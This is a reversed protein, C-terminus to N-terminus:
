WGTFIGGFDPWEVGYDLWLCSGFNTDIGRFDVVIERWEPLMLYYIGLPPGFVLLFMILIMTIVHGYRCLWMIFGVTRYTKYFFTRFTQYFRAWFVSRGGPRIIYRGAWCLGSEQQSQGWSHAVLVVFIYRQLASVFLEFFLFTGLLPFFLFVWWPGSSSVLFSFFGALLALLLHGCIMNVLLRLGLVIPRYLWSVAELFMVFWCLIGSIGSPKLAKFCAAKSGVMSLSGAGWFLFVLYGRVWFDGTLSYSGPMLGMVNFFFMVVFLVVVAHFSGAKYSRGMRGFVGGICSHVFALGACCRTFRCFFGSYITRIVWGLFLVWVFPWLFETPLFEEHLSYRLVCWGLM